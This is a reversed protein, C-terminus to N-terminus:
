RRGTKRGSPAVAESIQGAQTHQVDPGAGTEPDVHPPRHAGGRDVADLEHRCRDLAKPLAKRFRGEYDAVDGVVPDQRVVLTEVDHGDHIDQEMDDVVVPERCGRGVDSGCDPRATAKQKRLGRQNTGARDAAIDTFSFGSGSAIPPFLSATTSSEM